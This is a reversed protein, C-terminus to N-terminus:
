KQHDQHFDEGDRTSLERRVELKMREQRMEEEYVQNSRQEKERRSEEEAEKRVLTDKLQELLEEYQNTQGDIGAAWEDIEEQNVDAIIKEEVTKIKMVYVEELTEEINKRKRELEREKRRNIILETDKNYYSLLKFKNEITKEATEM